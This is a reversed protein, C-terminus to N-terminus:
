DEDCPGMVSIVSFFVLFSSCSLSRRGDADVHISQCVRRGATVKVKLGWFRFLDDAPAISYESYTEDLNSLGSM